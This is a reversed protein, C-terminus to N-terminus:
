SALFAGQIWQSSVQGSKEIDFGVVDFRCDCDKYQINTQLFHEAAQIIRKQKAKTVSALSDGFQGVARARVEVFVLTVYMRGSPLQKQELAIVDIEGKGAVLYNKEVLVLGGDQLMQCALQECHKGM